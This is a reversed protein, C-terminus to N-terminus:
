RSWGLPLRAVGVYVLVLVVLIAIVNNRARTQVPADRWRRPLHGVVAAIVMIVSHEIRYSPFGAGASGSWILYILGILVQLDVLGSFASLLIKDYRQEPQNGLWVLAFRVLAIVTVIVILWRVISHLMLVFEM